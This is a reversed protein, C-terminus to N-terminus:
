VGCPTRPMRDVIESYNGTTVTSPKEDFDTTLSFIKEEQLPDKAPVDGGDLIEVLMKKSQSPAGPASQNTGVLLPNQKGSKFSSDLLSETRKGLASGGPVDVSM